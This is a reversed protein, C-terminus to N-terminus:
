NTYHYGYQENAFVANMMKGREGLQGVRRYLQNPGGHCIGYPNEAQNLDGFDSIFWLKVM